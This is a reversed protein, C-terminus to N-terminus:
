QKFGITILSRTQALYRLPWIGIGSVCPLLQHPSVLFCLIKMCFTKTNQDKPVAIHNVIDYKKNRSSEMLTGDLFQDWLAM